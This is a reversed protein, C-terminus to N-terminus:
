VLKIKGYSFPIVSYFLIQEALIAFVAVLGEICKGSLRIYKFHGLILEILCHLTELESQGKSHRILIVLM